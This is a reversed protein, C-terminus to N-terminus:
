KNAYLVFLFLRFTPSPIPPRSLLLSTLALLLSPFFFSSFRLSQFRLSRFLSLLNPSILHFFLLSDQKGMLAFILFFILVDEEQMLAELHMYLYCVTQVFNTPSQMRLIEMFSDFDGIYEWGRQQRIGGWHVPSTVEYLWVQGQGFSLTLVLTYGCLTTIKFANFLNRPM